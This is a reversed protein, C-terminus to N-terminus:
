LKECMEVARDLAESVGVNSWSNRTIDFYDAIKIGDSDVYDIVMPNKNGLIQKLKDIEGWGMDITARHGLLFPSVHVVKVTVEGGLFKTTM